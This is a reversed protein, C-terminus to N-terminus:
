ADPQVDVGSAWRASPQAGHQRHLPPRETTPTSRGPPPAATPPPPAKERGPKHPPTPPPPPPPPPPATNTSQFPGAKTPPTSPPPPPQRWGPNTTSAGSGPRRSCSAITWRCTPTSTPRPSCIACTPFGGGSRPPQ